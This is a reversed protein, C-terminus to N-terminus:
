VDMGSGFLSLVRYKAVVWLSVFGDTWYLKKGESKSRPFYAVPVEVIRLRRLVLRVMLEVTFSMDTRDFRMNRVIATKAMQYCTEVDTLRTGWALNFAWTVAVNGWHQLFTMTPKGNIFRSGLVVDATGDLIPQLLQPFCSPDLELDADQFVVVEGTAQALGERLAGGRGNRATQFIVKIDRVAIERRLIEATGDTSCGDVIIIEKDVPVNRVADLVM